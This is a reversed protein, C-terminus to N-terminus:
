ATARRITTTIAYVHCRDADHGIVALLGQALLERTANGVHVKGGTVIRLQERTLPGRSYIADMIAVLRPPLGPWGRRVAFRRHARAKRQRITDRGVRARLNRAGVRARQAEGWGAMGLKRRHRGVVQSNIEDGPHEANWVAAIEADTSGRPHLKAVLDLLHQRLRIM